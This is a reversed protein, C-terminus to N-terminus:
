PQPAYKALWEERNYPAPNWDEAASAADREPPLLAKLQAADMVMARAERMAAATNQGAAREAYDLLIDILPAVDSSGGGARQRKLAAVYAKGEPTRLPLAYKEEYSKYAALVADREPLGRARAQAMVEHFPNKFPSLLIPSVGAEPKATEIKPETAQETMLSANAKFNEYHL